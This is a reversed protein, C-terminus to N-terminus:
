LTIRISNVFTIVNWIPGIVISILSSLKPKDGSSREKPTQAQLVSQIIQQLEKKTYHITDIKPDEPPRASPAKSSRVRPENLGLPNEHNENDSKHFSSCTSAEM